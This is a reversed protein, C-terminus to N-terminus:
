TVRTHGARYSVIRGRSQRRRREHNRVVLEKSMLHGSKRSHVSTFSSEDSSAVELGIAAHGHRLAWSRAFPESNMARADTSLRARERPSGEDQSRFFLM